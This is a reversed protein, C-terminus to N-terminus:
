ADGSANRGSNSVDLAAPRTGEVNNGHLLESRVIHFAHPAEIGIRVKPVALANGLKDRQLYGVVKVTVDGSPTEVVFSEDLGREFVLM